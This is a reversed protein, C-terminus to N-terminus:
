VRPAIGSVLTDALRDMDSVDLGAYALSIRFVVKGDLMTHVAFLKNTANLDKLIALAESESKNKLTFCVLGFLPEIPFEFVNNDFQILNVAKLKEYLYKALAIHRRLGNSLGEVGLSQLTTYLKISRFPRGLGLQYDKYDVVSGNATFDNNLYVGTANLSAVIPARQKFFFMTANFMTAMWKSANIFLSDALGFVNTLHRMEPLMATVGAYAGDVNLWM